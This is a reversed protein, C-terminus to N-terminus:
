ILSRHSVFICAIFNIEKESLFSKRSLSPYSIIHQLKMTSGNLLSQDKENWKMDDWAMKNNEKRNLNKKRKDHRKMLIKEQRKTQRQNRIKPNWYTYNQDMERWTTDYWAMKNNERLKLTKKKKENPIEYWWNRRRDEKLKMGLCKLSYWNPLNWFRKNLFLFVGTGLSQERM